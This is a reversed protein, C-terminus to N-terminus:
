GWAFGEESLVNDDLQGCRVGRNIVTRSPACQVLTIALRGLLLVRRCRADDRLRTPVAHNELERPRTYGSRFNVFCLGRTSIPLRSKSSGYLILSRGVALIGAAPPHTCTRSVLERSMFGMSDHNTDEAAVGIHIEDQLVDM